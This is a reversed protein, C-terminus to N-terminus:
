EEAITNGDAVWQMIAKYHRNDENIPVSLFKRSGNSDEPYTVQISIKINDKKNWKITCNEFDM